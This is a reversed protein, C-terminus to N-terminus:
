WQLSGSSHSSQSDSDAVGPRMEELGPLPGSRATQRIAARLADAMLQELRANRQENTETVASPLTVEVSFLSEDGDDTTGRTESVSLSGSPEADPEPREPATPVVRVEGHPSSYYLPLSEESLEGGPAPYTDVEEEAEQRAAEVGAQYGEAFDGSRISSPTGMEEVPCTSLRSPFAMDLGGFAQPLGPAPLSANEVGGSRERTRLSNYYRDLDLLLNEPIEETRDLTAAHLRAELDAVFGDPLSSPEGEDVETHDAANQPPALNEEGTRTDGQDWRPNLRVAQRAQLATELMEMFEDVSQQDLPNPAPTDGLEGLVVLMSAIDQALEETGATLATPRSDM